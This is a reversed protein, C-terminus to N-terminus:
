IWHCHFWLAKEICIWLHRGWAGDNKKVKRKYLYNNEDVLYRSSYKSGKTPGSVFTAPQDVMTSWLSSKVHESRSTNVQLSSKIMKLALIEQPYINTNTEDPFKMELLLVAIWTETLMETLWFFFFCYQHREPALNDVKCEQHWITRKTSKTGFQGPALNDEKCEQHWITRPALNDEKCEQHWITRRASKTGFQGHHWITRTGFQGLVGRIAKPVLIKFVILVLTCNAIASSDVLFSVHHLQSM